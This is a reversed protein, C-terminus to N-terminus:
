KLNENEEILKLKKLEKLYRINMLLIVMISFATVIYPVKGIIFTHVTCNLLLFITYMAFEKLQFHYWLKQSILTRSWFFIIYSLGTAIAAGKGGYVPILIFNLIINTLGALTAVIINYWTKRSFAIGVSTAESITYMIPQLLLFPFIYVAMTYGDGLIFAVINKLILIVMCIITMIVTITKTIIEFNRKPANSEYWRIAVPTWFLTFCTQIISLSNVIKFAVSYLGLEGYDCLTRLMVKDMSTLVWMLLSTPILPLGYKLMRKLLKKDILTYGIKINKFTFIYLIIGNVVESLAIAIVVSRFSQEYLLFLLLTFVLTLIKLLITFSSYLLGKEEMRIFLLAFNEIVMFPLMIALAIVAVMEKETDFLLMSITTHNIAIAISICVVLISPIIVANSLLKDKCEEHAKFERVFAQDLGLYMLMSLMGQALTFMSSKGYEEPTIFFTIIPVTIVGILAGVIPGVSFAGLKKILKGM